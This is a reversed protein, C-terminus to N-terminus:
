GDTSTLHDNIEIIRVSSCYRSFQRNAIFIAFM